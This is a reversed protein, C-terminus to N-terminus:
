PSKQEANEAAIPRRRPESVFHGHQLFQLTYQQVTADDMIFTHLVPLVAFDRAGALRTEEVSVVLDDDGTLLPNRGKKDGRGGALIGFQCAPVALKREFEAWDPGLEALPAGILTRLLKNDGLRKALQAGNNPPALMVFRQVRPDPKAGGQPDSRDGMWHRVVMNGLSHAVFNIEEIGDLNTIIQDLTRAHEGIGARTSPYAVNIVTYGGKDALFKAMKTMASPSRGLGHLCIVAKGRMPPLKQERKIRDLQQRCHELTGWAHRVNREDLLRCHGTLVNRQIHWGHFFREDAWFQKGGLTPIKLNAPPRDASPKNEDAQVDASRGLAAALLMAAPFLYRGM